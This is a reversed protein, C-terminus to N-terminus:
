CALKGLAWDYLNSWARSTSFRWGLAVIVGVKEQDEIDLRIRITPTKGIEALFGAIVGSNVPTYVVGYVEAFMKPKGFTNVPTTDVEYTKGAVAVEKLM